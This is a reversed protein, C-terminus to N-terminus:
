FLLKCFWWKSLLYTPLLHTLYHRLFILAAVLQSRNFVISYLLCLLETYTHMFLYFEYKNHLLEFIFYYFFFWRCHMSSHFYLLSIFFFTEFDVMQCYNDAWHFDNLIWCFYNLHSPWYHPMEYRKKKNCIEKIITACYAEYVQM